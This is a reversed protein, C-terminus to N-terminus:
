SAGGPVLILDYQEFSELVEGYTRQPILRPGVDGAVPERNHSFYTAEIQVPPLTPYMELHAQIIKPELLVFVETPGIFDLPTLDPYLCVALRLTPITSMTTPNPQLSESARHEGGDTNLCLCRGVGLWLKLSPLDFISLDPVPRSEVM